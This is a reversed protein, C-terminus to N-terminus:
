FNETIIKQGHRKSFYFVFLAAVMIFILLARVGFFETLVGSLLVPFVTAITSLFWFNGFVRGRLWTPTSEQLFTITPITMGVFGMGMIVMFIPELIVRLTVNLYPILFVIFFLGLALLAASSEIVYKKRWSKKLNRSILLSGILAGIGAPVVILLGALNVSVKLIQTAVLPLTVIVMALSVQVGLLLLIPYLITKNEKIYKYGDYITRFFTLLLKDFAEPIKKRPKIEPLFSVSIFAIFLFISCLILSGTFGLFGLLVGAVGFGLIISAQQTIFFLSNAHPYYKKSVISPLSSSEAPIYFQNFFSYLLVVVYLLFFNSEHTFIFGFVSLAQMLNTVMLTKRRSLLDVSAAGIPGFFIAPLAYALWLLSTAISSGTVTYLRTIILFNMLNITLQSLMQSIWLSRFKSNKILVKFDEM